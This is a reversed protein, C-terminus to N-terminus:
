VVCAYADAFTCCCAYACARVRVGRMCMGPEPPKTGQTPPPPPPQATGTTAGSLSPYNNQYYYNYYAASTAANPTTTATASTGTTTAAPTAAGTNWYNYANYATTTHTTPFSTLLHTCTLHSTNSVILVPVCFSCFLFLDHVLM